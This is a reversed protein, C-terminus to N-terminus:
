FGLEKLIIPKLKTIAKYRHNYVREEEKSLQNEHYYKKIKPIYFFSRYPYGELLKLYPKKAIIGEIEGKISWVKGSPLAFSVVTRFYAKRNDEPLTKAIKIMHKILEKDSAEHGLWRRSRVGPEGNLYDIELGGDDSIAPLSSKKAYFVAKKRSNALYTKGTEEVDDTIGLDKLSVIELPLDSLLNSIEKLKGPNTTAVLIKKM